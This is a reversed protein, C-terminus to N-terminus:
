TYIQRNLASSDVTDDAFIPCAFGRGHLNQVPQILGIASLDEYVAPIAMPGRWGVGNGGADSHNVLMEHEGSRMGSEIVNEQASFCSAESKNVPSGNPFSQVADGF